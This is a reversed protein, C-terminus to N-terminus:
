NTKFKVKFTISEYQSQKETRKQLKLSKQLRLFYSCLPLASYRKNMKSQKGEQNKTKARLDNSFM